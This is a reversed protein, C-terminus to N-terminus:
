IAIGGNTKYIKKEEVIKECRINSDLIWKAFYKEVCVGQSGYDFMSIFQNEKQLQKLKFCTLGEGCSGLMNWMGGCSEGLLKGCVYCCRQFYFCLM